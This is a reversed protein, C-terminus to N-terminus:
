SFLRRMARRRKPTQRFNSHDAEIRDCTAIGERKAYGRIFPALRFVNSPSNIAAFFVGVFFATALLVLVAAERLPERLLRPYSQIPASEAGPHATLPRMSGPAGERTGYSLRTLAASEYDTPRENSDFRSWLMFAPKFSSRRNSPRSGTASKNSRRRARPSYSYLEERCAFTTRVSAEM